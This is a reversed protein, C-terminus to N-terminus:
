LKNLNLCNLSMNDGVFVYKSVDYIKKIFHYFPYFDASYNQM